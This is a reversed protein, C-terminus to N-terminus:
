LLLWLRIYLILLCFRSCLWLYSCSISTAISSYYCRFGSHNACCNNHSGSFMNFPELILKFYLSIIVNSAFLFIKEAGRRGRASKSLPRGAGPGGGFFYPTLRVYIYILSKVSEFGRLHKPRYLSQISPHHSSPHYRQHSSPACLFRPIPRRTIAISFKFFPNQSLPTPHPRYPTIKPNICLPANTSSPKNM